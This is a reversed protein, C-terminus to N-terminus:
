HLKIIDFKILENHHKKTSVDKHYFINQEALSGEISHAKLSFSKTQKIIILNNISTNLNLSNDIWDAKEISLRSSAASRHVSLYNPEESM